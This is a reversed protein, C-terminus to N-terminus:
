ANQADELYPSLQAILGDLEDAERNRLAKLDSLEETLTEAKARAEVLETQLASLNESEPQSGAADRIRTLALALREEIKTLDTM